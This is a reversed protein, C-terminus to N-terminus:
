KLGLQRGSFSIATAKLGSQPHGKATADRSAGSMPDGLSTLGTRQFLRRCEWNMHVKPPTAWSAFPTLGLM